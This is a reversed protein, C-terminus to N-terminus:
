DFKEKAYTRDLIFELIEEAVGNSAQITGDALLLVMGAEEIVSAQLVKSQIKESSSVPIRSSEM